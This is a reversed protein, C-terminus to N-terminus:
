SEPAVKGIREFADRLVRDKAHIQEEENLHQLSCGGCVGFHPCRPEVRFPSSYLVEHVRGEDYRRQKREYTFTVKEGPLAGHIFVAKGDVHAVGRGDQSLSEVAAEVPDKPLAKRRNRGM